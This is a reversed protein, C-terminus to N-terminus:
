SVFERNVLRLELIWSISIAASQYLFGVIFNVTKSHNSRKQKSFADM